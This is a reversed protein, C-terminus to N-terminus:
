AHAIEPRVGRRLLHPRRELREVLDERVARAFPRGGAPARADRAEIVVDAAASRGAHSVDRALLVARHYVIPDREELAARVLDLAVELLAHAFGRLPMQELF